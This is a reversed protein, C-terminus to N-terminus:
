IRSSVQVVKKGREGSPTFRMTHTGASTKAEVLKLQRPTIAGTNTPWWEVFYASLTVSGQAPILRAACNYSWGEGDFGLAFARERQIRHDQVAIEIDGPCVSVEQADQSGNTLVFDYRNWRGGMNNFKEGGYEATVAPGAAAAILSAALSVIM